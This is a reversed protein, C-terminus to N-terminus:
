KSAMYSRPQVTGVQGRSYPPAPNLAASCSASLAAMASSPAGGGSAPMPVLM